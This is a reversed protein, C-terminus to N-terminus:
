TGCETACIRSAMAMGNALEPAFGRGDDQITVTLKEEDHQFRLWVESAGAHKVVNNLAVTVALFFNPRLEAIVPSALLQVPVDLRFRVSATSLFNEASQCLYGFLSELTDCEPNVAWVTERMKEVLGRTSRAINDLQAELVEAQCVNRKAVDVQLAMGTLTAGLDDHLDKAIRAREGQLAAEQELRLIRRQVRLRYAQIGAAAGIIAIGCAVYFPWTQWFHPALTFTFEADRESWVNHNNAARVHFRYAGPKLTTYTAVRRTTPESWDSDVGDLRWSFRNKESATLSLATLQFEIVRARGPALQLQAQSPTSQSSGGVSNARAKVPGTPDDGFVVEDDVKVQEIAVPPPRENLKLERPDIMVVGRVTPFWLQGDDTKCGAPQNEGNTEASVM